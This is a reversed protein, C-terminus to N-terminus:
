STEYLVGWKKLYEYGYDNNTLVSRLEKLSLEQADTKGIRDAFAQIGVYCAGTLNHYDERTITGKEKISEILEKNAEFGELKRKFGAKAEQLDNYIYEAKQLYNNIHNAQQSDNYIYNAQQSDNYIYNAQQSNNDIYEAKQLYNSIHNAKVGDFRVSINGFDINSLDLEGYKNTANNLLWLKIEQKSKM